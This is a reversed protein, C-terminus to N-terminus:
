TLRNIFGIKDPSNQWAFANLFPTVGSLTQFGTLPLSGFYEKSGERSLKKCIDKKKGERKNSPETWRNSSRKRFITAM